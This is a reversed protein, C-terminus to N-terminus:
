PGIDCLQAVRGSEQAGFSWLLEVSHTLQGSGAALDHRWAVVDIRDCDAAVGSRSLRAIVITHALGSDTSAGASDLVVNGSNNYRTFQWLYESLERLGAADAPQRNLQGAPGGGAQLDVGDRDLYSCKFVRAQFLIPPDGARARGFQFYRADEGTEVLDAYQASNRAATESWSLAENWDDTCLEYRLGQQDLSPDIDTSKLHATAVYQSGSAPLDVHFGTPRRQSGDYLRQAILLDSEGFPRLASHPQSQEPEPAGGGCGALTLAIATTATRVRACRSPHKSPM